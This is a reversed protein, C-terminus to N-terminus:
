LRFGSVGWIEFLPSAFCIAASPRCQRIFPKLTSPQRNRSDPFASVQFQYRQVVDLRFYDQTHVDSNTCICVYMCVYMCVIYMCVYLCVNYIYLTTHLSLFESPGSHRFSPAINACTTASTAHAGAGRTVTRCTFFGGMLMSSLVSQFALAVVQLTSFCVVLM